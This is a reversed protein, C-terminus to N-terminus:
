FNQDNLRELVGEVPTKLLEDLSQFGMTRMHPALALQAKSTQKLNAKALMALHVLVLRKEIASLKAFTEPVANAVTKQAIADVATKSLTGRTLEGYFDSFEQEHLRQSWPVSEDGQPVQLTGREMKTDFHTLMDQWSTNANFKNFDDKWNQRGAWPPFLWSLMRNEYTNLFWDVLMGGYSNLGLSLAVFKRPFMPAPQVLNRQVWPELEGDTFYLGFTQNNIQSSLVNLAFFLPYDRLVPIKLDFINKKRLWDAFPGNIATNIPRGTRQQVIAKSVMSGVVYAVDSFSGVSMKFPKVNNAEMQQYVWPANVLCAQFLAEKFSIQGDQLIKLIFKARTENKFANWVLPKVMLKDLFLMRGAAWTGFFFVPVSLAWELAGPKKAAEWMSEFKTKTAALSGDDASATDPYLASAGIAMAGVVSAAQVYGEMSINRLTTTLQTLQARVAAPSSLSQAATQVVAASVRATTLLGAGLDTLAAGPQTIAYKGFKFTAAGLDVTGQTISLAPKWLMKGTLYTVALDAAAFNMQAWTMGWNNESHGSMMAQAVEPATIASTAWDVIKGTAAGIGCGTAAGAGFGLVTGEPGAATGAAAGFKSAVAAGAVCGLTPLGYQALTSNENMHVWAERYAAGLGSFSIDSMSERILGGPAYAEPRVRYLWSHPAELAQAASTGPYQRQVQAAAEFAEQYRHAAWLVKVLQLRTNAMQDYLRHAQTGDLAVHSVNNEFTDTQTRLTKFFTEFAESGDTARIQAGKAAAISAHLVHAQAIVALSAPDTAHSVAQSTLTELTALTADLNGKGSSLLTMEFQAQLLAKRLKQTQTHPIIKSLTTLFTADPEARLTWEAHQLQLETQAQPLADAPMSLNPLLAQLAANAALARSWDSLTAALLQAQSQSLYSVADANLGANSAYTQQVATLTDQQLETLQQSLTAHTQTLTQLRTELTAIEARMADLKQRWESRPLTMQMWPVGVLDSESETSYNREIAHWLADATTRLAAVQPSLAAIESQAADLVLRLKAGTAASARVQEEATSTVAVPRGPFNNCYDPLNASVIAARIATSSLGHFDKMLRVATTTLVETAASTVDSTAKSSGGRSKCISDVCEQMPKNPACDPFRKELELLKSLGEARLFRITTESSAM